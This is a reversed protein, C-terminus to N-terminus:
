EYKLADVPNSIAAKIAQFSIAMWGVFLSVLTAVIYIFPSVKIHDAFNALWYRTGFWALPWAILTSILILWIVEKSLLRIISPVSAGLVKRVGIEKTRVASIYAILGLLGLCAIFIALIAFVAFIRGTKVESHYLRNYEEDFFFYQFPQKTTYQYWTDEVFSLTKQVQGTNLRICLYGEWNGPMITLCAPEIKKHLSEVHYDKIVGIIPRHIYDEGGPQLIKKGIPDDYGLVKVATENIIIANSDTGFEKSFFRGAVLEFGMVRPYEFSVRNQYLLYLNKDPDDEKLMGNNSYEKGPIARSNAVGSILPNKLVDQKFAELSNELADPRRIVLLQEKDFGLNKNRM